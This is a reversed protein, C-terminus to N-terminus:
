LMVSLLRLLWGVVLVLLFSVQLGWNPIIAKDDEQKIPRRCIPCSRTRKMNMRSMKLAQRVCESCFSHHCPQLSVANVYFSHCIHCQLSSQEYAQLHLNLANPNPNNNNNPNNAPSNSFPPRIWIDDDDNNHNDDKLSQIKSRSPM